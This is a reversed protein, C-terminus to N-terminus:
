GDLGQVEVGQPVESVGRQALLAEALRQRLGLAIVREDHVRLDGAGVAQALVEVGGAVHQPLNLRGNAGSAGFSPHAVVKLEAAGM